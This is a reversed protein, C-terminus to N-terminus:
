SLVGDIDPQELYEYSLRDDTYHRTRYIKRDKIECIAVIPTRFRKGNRPDPSVEVFEMMVVQTQADAVVNIYQYERAAIQFASQILNRVAKGELTRFVTGDPGVNMETVRFDPHLLALGVEPNSTRESEFSAMVLAILEQETMDIYYHMFIFHSEPAACICAAGSDRLIM